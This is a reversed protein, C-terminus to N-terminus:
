GRRAGTAVDFVHVAEPAFALRVSDGESVAVSHDTRAKVLVEGLQVDVIATDGLNEVLYVRGAMGIEAFRLASPRVGAIVPGDAGARDGLAIETGGVRLVGRAISGDLLNMPPSGIFAAVPSRVGAARLDGGAHRDARDRGDMFVAMRDAITM